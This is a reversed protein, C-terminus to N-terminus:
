IGAIGNRMTLQVGGGVGWVQLLAMVLTQPQPNPIYSVRTCDDLSHPTLGSPPRSWHSSCYANREEVCVRSNFPLFIVFVLTTM